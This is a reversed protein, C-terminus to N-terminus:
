VDSDGPEADAPETAIPQYLRITTFSSTYNPQRGVRNHSHIASPYEPVEPSPPPTPSDPIDLPLTEPVLYHDWITQLRDIIPTRDYPDITPEGYYPDRVSADGETNDLIVHAGLSRNSLTRKKCNLYKLTDAYPFSYEPLHPVPITISVDGQNEGSPTTFTRDHSYSDYTKKWWGQAKAYRHFSLRVADSGYARDVYSIDSNPPTWVLARGLIQNNGNVYVLIRLHDALITYFDLYDQCEDHRMCSQDLTGINVTAYNDEHYAWPIDSAPLLQFSGTRNLAHTKIANALCEFDTDTFLDLAYDPLISRIIKAPRGKRRGPATYNNVLRQQKTVPLYSVNGDPDLDLFDHKDRLAIASHQLWRLIISQNSSDNILEYFSDSFHAM